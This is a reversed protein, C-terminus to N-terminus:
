RHDGKTHSVRVFLCVMGCDYCVDSYAPVSVGPGEETAPALQVAVGEVQPGRVILDGGCSPCTRPRRREPGQM